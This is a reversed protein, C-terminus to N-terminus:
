ARVPPAAVRGLASRALAVAAAEAARPDRRPVAPDPPGLPSPKGAAVLCAHLAAADEAADVRQLLRAVYRLNLWQQTADGVREWHALVAALERAAEVPDGHVARTAAAEMEAIGQWWFNRVGAALAGAEDFLALARDPEAKKLVLGLAYRAMSQATPNATADAVELSERAAALGREPTRGVAQCVAVYYLTWVLRIRDGDARAREAEATYHRLAAEVDGDYLAVDALVDGPFAIRPTGPPPLRGGALRATATAVAFDGRNWAGRAAAGVAAPYRPHGPDVVRLLQEAWAYAEYGVRLHVLEPVATVLRLAPEWDRDAAARTFAARLDDYVALGEEAWAREDAGQMGRGAREALDVHVAVHRRALARDEGAEETRARGYARLTELLRYRSHVGSRAVVMSRDVLRTLRDLVDDEAAEPDVVRHVARLDAGGAFVSMGRFLRQEPEPLLRYSWEIAAELSQHRAVPGRGGGLLPADELRRAVEVPSMVRMRAAALEIGLPLGDLRGCIAAVADAAAADLRFDPAAARARQVFLATADELPLPPVPWVQEGDAALPERSTALVVVRPCHQVVEGVLRAAHALVHECNDVVLLLARERLYHLVTQEVSLGSRQRIGLAAAVADGVPAGEPLGALECLWVGDDFRDRDRAAVEVALRSKGAGGVGTLTVLPGARLAALVREVERGRGVFGSARRPLNGQPPAGALGPDHVLIRRYLAQAPAAPEVGLEDDLRTRLEHYAALADAQRGTAYRARMLSVAPREWSPHARVLAELEPVAEAARGLEVLADARDAAAGTRLETLRAAEAAAFEEDAFEALADGRWLGLATDLEALVRGHDGAAAAARATRVRREFEAADLTAADLVLCYGPPRYRLPAADGLVGRLRSVYARLATLAGDPPTEGWLAAVLRDASVVEGHAVLLAALLTRPKHGGVAVPGQAREVSLPGLVRFHVHAAGAM